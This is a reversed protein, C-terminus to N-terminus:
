FSKNLKQAIFGSMDAKVEGQYAFVQQSTDHLNVKWITPVLASDKHLEAGALLLGDPSTWKADWLTHSPGGFFVRRRTGQKFDLVAAESDPGAEELRNQGDRNTVLYNYSYMDLALSSDSNYILYKQFPRLYATDIPALPTPELVDEGSLSFSDASFTHDQQRLYQFLQPFAQRVAMAPDDTAVEQLTDKGTSTKAANDSNNCAAIVVACLATIIYRKM